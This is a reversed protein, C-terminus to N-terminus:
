RVCGQSHTPTSHRRSRQLAVGLKLGSMCFTRMCIGTSSLHQATTIRMAHSVHLYIGAKTRELSCTCTRRLRHFNVVETLICRMHM